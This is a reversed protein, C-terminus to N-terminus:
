QLINNVEAEAEKLAEAPDKDELIVRQFATHIAENVKSVHETAPTMNMM